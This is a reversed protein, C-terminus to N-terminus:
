NKTDADDEEQKGGDVMMVNHVCLDCKFERDDKYVCCGLNCARTGKVKSMKEEQKWKIWGYVSLGTYIIYMTIMPWNPSTTISWTVWAAYGVVFFVFNAKSKRNVCIKGLISFMCAVASLVDM